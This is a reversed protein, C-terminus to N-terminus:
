GPSTRAAASAIGLWTHRNRWWCWGVKPANKRESGDRGTGGSIWLAPTRADFRGNPKRLRSAITMFCHNPELAQPRALAWCIGETLTLPTRAAGAFEEQAEEPSANRLGDGRDLGHVLYPGAPVEIGPTPLFDDVDTMDHVVFGKQNGRQMLPALDAISAGPLVLLPARTDPGVAGSQVADDDVAALLRDPDIGTLTPVGLTILREAQERVPPLHHPDSAPERATHTTPPPTTPTM